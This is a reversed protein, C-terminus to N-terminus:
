NGYNEGLFVGSYAKGHLDGENLLTVKGVGGLWKNMTEEKLEHPHGLVPPIDLWEFIRVIKSIKRANQIVKEPDDVHQLVNYIWVEDFYNNKDYPLDEGGRRDYQIDLELYRRKIWDPYDCPDVVVCTGRGKTKLLLSVPGGGIDLVSKGQLDIRPGANDWEFKLGMLEAYKLQKQEEYFTSACDGWWNREYEEHKTNKKECITNDGEIRFIYGELREKIAEIEEETMYKHEFQLTDVMSFDIGELIKYDYGETDIKLFDIYGVGAETMVEKLTRVRVKIKRTPIDIGNLRGLEKAHNENFSGIGMTWSPLNYKNIDEESVYWFDKVENREGIACNFYTINEDHELKDFYEQVPEVMIGKWGQKSLPLLTEFCNSGIEVFLRPHLVQRVARALMSNGEMFKENVDEWYKGSAKAFCHIVYVDPVPTDDSYIMPFEPGGFGGLTDIKYIAMKDKDTRVFDSVMKPGTEGWRIDDQELLENARDQMRGLLKSGKKGAAIASNFAWQWNEPDRWDSYTLFEKDGLLETMDKLCITDLDLCVGGQEYLIKYTLYDKTHARVFYYDKDRLAYFEPVLIAKTKIDLKNLLTTDNIIGTHWLIIEGKQTKQATLVSIYDQYTFEGGTLIFHISM